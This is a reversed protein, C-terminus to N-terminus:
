VVSQGFCGSACPEFAGRRRAGIAGPHLRRHRPGLTSTTLNLALKDHLLLLKKEFM